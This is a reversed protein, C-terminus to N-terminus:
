IIQRVIEKFNEISEANYNNTFKYILHSSQHSIRDLYKEVLAAEEVPDLIEWADKNREPMNDGAKILITVMNDMYGSKSLWDIHKLGESETIRKQMVAFAVNSVPGRDFITNKLIGNKALACIALDCGANLWHVDRNGEGREGVNGIVGHFYDVFPIKFIKTNFRYDGSKLSEYDDKDFPVNLEAELMSLLYSKGARKAGEIIINM